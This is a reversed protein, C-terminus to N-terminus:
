DSHLFKLYFCITCNLEGKFKSTCCFSTRPQNREANYGTCFRSVNNAPLIFITPYDKSQRQGRLTHEPWHPSYSIYHTNQLLSFATGGDDALSQQSSPWILGNQWQWDTKHLLRRIWHDPWSTCVTEWIVWLANIGPTHRMWEWYKYHKCRSLIAM